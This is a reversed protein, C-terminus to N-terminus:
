KKLPVFAVGYYEDRRITDVDKLLKILYGHTEPYLIAGGPALYSVLKEEISRDGPEVGASVLIKSFPKYKKAVDLGNGCISVINKFDATNKHLHKELEPIIEVAYVIGPDALIAAVSAAYGCGAGIELVTDGSSIDLKDLMFAVMSPQSCTQGDGIPLPYDEYALSLEDPPLFRARDVKKMAALVRASRPATDLYSEARLRIHEVLEDNSNM